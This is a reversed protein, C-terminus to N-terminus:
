NDTTEPSGLPFEPGINEPNTFTMPKVLDPTDTPTFAPDTGKTYKLFDNPEAVTIAEREVYHSIKLGSEARAELPTITWTTPNWQIITGAVLRRAEETPAHVLSIRKTTVKYFRPPPPTATPPTQGHLYQTTVSIWGLLATPDDNRITIREKAEYTGGTAAAPISVYLATAADNINAVITVPPHAQIQAMLQIVSGNEFYRWRKPDQTQPHGSRIIKVINHCIPSANAPLFEPRTELDAKIWSVTGIWDDYDTVDFTEHTPGYYLKVGTPELTTTITVLPTPTKPRQGIITVGDANADLNLEWELAPILVPLQLIPEIHTPPNIGGPLTLTNPLIM